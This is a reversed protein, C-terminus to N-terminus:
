HRVYLKYLLHYPSKRKFDYKIAFGYMTHAGAKSNYDLIVHRDKLGSLHFPMGVLPQDSEENNCVTWKRIDNSQTYIM